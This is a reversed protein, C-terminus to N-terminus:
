KALRRSVSQYLHVAKIVARFILGGKKKSAKYVITPERVAQIGDPFGLELIRQSREREETTLQGSVGRENRENMTHINDSYKINDIIVLSDKGLM